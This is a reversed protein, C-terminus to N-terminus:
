SLSSTTRLSRTRNTHSGSSAANAIKHWIIPALNDFGIHRCHEQISTQHRTPIRQVAEEILGVLKENKAIRPIDTQPNNLPLAEPPIFASLDVTM